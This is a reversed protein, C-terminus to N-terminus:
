QQSCMLILLPSESEILRPLVQAVAHKLLEGTYETTGVQPGRASRSSRM